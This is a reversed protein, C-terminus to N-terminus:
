IVKHWTEDRGKLLDLAVGLIVEVVLSWTRPKLNLAQLKELL